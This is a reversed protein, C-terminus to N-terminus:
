DFSALIADIDDQNMAADPMQPGNMLDASDSVEKPPPKEKPLKRIEAGFAELLDHVKDEIQRLAGVVKTIRQGTIDQFSCAEYIKTIAEGVQDSVESDMREALAEIAEVAEFIENTAKETADVVAELEDNATPLHEATVDDPRITAIEAKLEDIFKSLEQIESYVKINAATLDLDMSALVSSVVKAVEDPEVGAPPKALASVRRDIASESANETM